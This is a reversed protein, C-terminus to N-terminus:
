KKRGWMQEPTKEAADCLGWLYAGHVFAVVYAIIYAILGLPLWLPLAVLITIIRKIKM